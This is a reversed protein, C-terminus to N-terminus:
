HSSGCCNGNAHQQATTIWACAVVIVTVLVFSLPGPENRCASALAFSPSVMLKATAPVILRVPPSNNTSLFTVM